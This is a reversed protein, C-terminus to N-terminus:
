LDQLTDEDLKRKTFVGAISGSLERSSRALGQRLRQFWSLKPEPAVPAVPEARQEV